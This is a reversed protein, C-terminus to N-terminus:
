KETKGPCEFTFPSMGELNGKTYQTYLACRKGRKCNSCNTETWKEKHTSSTWIGDQDSKYVTVVVCPNKSDYLLLGKEMLVNNDDKIILNCQHIGDILMKQVNSPDADRRHLVYDVRVIWVGNKTAEKDWKGNKKEWERLRLRIASAIKRKYAIGESSPYSEVYRIIKGKERREAVKFKTTANWSLPTGKVVFRFKEM